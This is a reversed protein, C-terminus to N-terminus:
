NNSFSMLIILKKIPSRISLHTIVMHDDSEDRGYPHKGCAHPAHPSCKTKHWPLCVPVTRKEDIKEGSMHHRYRDPHRNSTM